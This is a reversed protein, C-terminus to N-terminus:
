HLTQDGIVLGIDRARIALELRTKFGTKQLMNTIHDISWKRTIHLSIVAAATLIILCIVLVPVYFASRMYREGHENQTMCIQMICFDMLWFFAVVIVSTRSKRIQICRNETWLIRGGSIDNERYRMYADIPWEDSEHDAGHNENDTDHHSKYVLAGKSDVIEANIHSLGFLEEYGTNSPILGTAISGEFLGVYLLCFAEQIKYLRIGFITPSGGVIIYLIMLAAAIVSPIVPIFWYHRMASVRCKRMMVSFAAISFVTEWIVVVIYIIGYSYKKCHADKIHFMQGHVANTMIAICLLIWFAIMVIISIGYSKYNSDANTDNKTGGMIMVMVDEPTDVALAAFFAFLPVGTFPVYYLYWFYQRIDPLSVFFNYRCIRLYFLSVMLIASTVLLQRIIPHVIRRNLSLAWGTLITIYIFTGFSYIPLIELPTMSIIWALVTAMIYVSLRKKQINTLVPMM